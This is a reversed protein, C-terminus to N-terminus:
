KKNLKEFRVCTAFPSGLKEFKYTLYSGIVSGNRTSIKHGRSSNLTKSGSPYNIGRENSKKNKNKPDPGRPLPINYIENKNCATEKVLAWKDIKLTIGLNEGPLNMKKTIKYNRFNPVTTRVAFTWKTEKVLM